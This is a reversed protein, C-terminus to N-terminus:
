VATQTCVAIKLCESVVRVHTVSCMLKTGLNPKVRSPVNNSFYSLFSLLGTHTHHLCFKWPHSLLQPVLSGKVKNVAGSFLSVSCIYDGNLETREQRAAFRMESIPFSKEESDFPFRGDHQQAIFSARGELKRVQEADTEAARALLLQELTLDLKSTCRICHRM